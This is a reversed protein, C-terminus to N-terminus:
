KQAHGQLQSDSSPFYSLTKHCYRNALKKGSHYNIWHNRGKLPSWIVWLWGTQKREYLSKMKRKVKGAGEFWGQKRGGRLVTYWLRLSNCPRFAKFMLATILWYLLGIEVKNLCHRGTKDPFLTQWNMKRKKDAFCMYVRSTNSLIFCLSFGRVILLGTLFVAWAEAGMGFCESKNPM